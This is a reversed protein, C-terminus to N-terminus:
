LSETFLIPDEIFIELSASDKRSEVIAPHTGNYKDWCVICHKRTQNDYKRKAKSELYFSSLPLNQLCSSCLKTVVEKKGFITTVRLDESTKRYVVGHTDERKIM